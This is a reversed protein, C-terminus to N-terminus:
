SAAVEVQEFANVSELVEHKQSFAEPLIEQNETSILTRNTDSKQLSPSVFVSKKTLSDKYSRVVKQLYNTAPTPNDLLMADLPDMQSSIIIPNFTQKYHRKNFKPPLGHKYHIVMSNKRPHLLSMELSASTIRMQKGARLRKVLAIMWAAKELEWKKGVSKCLNVMEDFVNQFFDDPAKNFIMTDGLSLWQFKDNIIQKKLNSVYSDDADANPHYILNVGDPLMTMPQYLIMDPHLVAFQDGLTQKKVMENLSYIKNLPLHSYLDGLNTHNFKNKHETINKLYRNPQSKKNEAIAIYLDDAKGLIKFSEILLETQWRHYDTNEISVFYKM